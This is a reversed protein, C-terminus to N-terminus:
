NKGRIKMNCFLHHHTVSGVRHGVLWDFLGTNLPRPNNRWQWSEDTLHEGLMEQIVLMHEAHPFRLSADLSVPSDQWLRVNQKFENGRDGTTSSPCQSKVPLRPSPGSHGLMMCPGAVEERTRSEVHICSKNSKLWSTATFAELDELAEWSFFGELIYSGTIFTEPQGNVSQKRRSLCASGTPVFWWAREWWARVSCELKMKWWKEKRKLFERNRWYGLSRWM